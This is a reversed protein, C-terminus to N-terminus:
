QDGEPEKQPIVCKHFCTSNHKGCYDDYTSERWCRLHWRHSRHSCRANRHISM